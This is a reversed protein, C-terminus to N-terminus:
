MPGHCALPGHAVTPGLALGLEKTVLLTWAQGDHEVGRTWAATVVAESQEM